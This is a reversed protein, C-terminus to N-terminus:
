EEDKKNHEAELQQQVDRPVPDYHSFEMTFSGQGQTMSKLETHYDSLASLPMDAKVAEVDGATVLALIGSENPGLAGTLAAGAESKGDHLPDAPQQTGADLHLRRRIPATSEGQCQGQGGDGFLQDFVEHGDALAMGTLLLM